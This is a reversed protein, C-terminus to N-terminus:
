AAESQTSHHPSTPNAIPSPTTLLEAWHQVANIPTTAAHAGDDLAIHTDSLIIMRERRMRQAAPAPLTLPKIRQSEIPAPLPDIAAAGTIMLWKDYFAEITEYTADCRTIRPVIWPLPLGREVRRAELLQQINEFVTRMADNATLQQYLAADNAYTDISIIDIDADLIARADGPRNLDTRLHIAAVRHDRAITILERWHNSNLPDAPRLASAPCITPWARCGTLGITLVLDRAADGLTTLITDLASPTIGTLAETPLPQDGITYWAASEGKAQTPPATCIVLEAPTTPPASSAARAITPADATTTDTIINTTLSQLATIVTHKGISTDPILRVGADRAPGELPICNDRGIPDPRPQVPTYGLTGGLNSWPVNDAQGTAFNELNKRSILVPALGPCAQTFVIGFQEPSEDHRAILQDILSPDILCWDLGAILAADLNDLLGATRLANTITPADFAEDFATLNALGGRWNSQAISRAIRKSRAAHAETENTHSEIITINLTNIHNNLIRRADDPRPTIIAIGQLRASRALRQALLALPPPTGPTLPQDWTTPQDANATDILVAWARTTTPNNTPQKQEQHTSPAPSTPISGADFAADVRQLITDLHDGVEAMWQVNVRDRQVRLRFRELEPLEAARAIRRDAAYRKLAATQNLKQLLTWAPETAHVEDRNRHVQAILKNVRATDEAHRETRELLSDTDRSLRAIRRVGRRLEALRERVQPSRQNTPQDAPQDSPRDNPLPFPPIPDTDPAAHTKLTEALTLSTTHQKAIGGETADITTLSKAKDAAFYQEFQAAYTAMQEDTYIPRGLHDQRKYLYARMRVIRQWELMELTNFPNLEGAWTTHIAAQDAYYQGDTFALDQGILAVPDCGFYRALSYSLHAVTAADPLTARPHNDPAAALDEGLAIRLIDEEIFRRQGPWADHIAPNARGTSVLTIGKVDDATLGEYFRKSIEAYDIATVFDPRIGMALLPKLVTQVAIVVCRARADPDKLLEINRKLSPGASVVIGLRGRAIDKLQGIGPANAYRDANALANRFSTDSQMLTTIIHTRVAAVASPFTKQFAEIDIALRSASPPHTAFCVGFSLPAELGRLAATLAALDSPTTIFRIEKSKLWRAHDIRALVARLLPIDTELVLIATHEDCREALAKIHHGLAFGHVVVIAHQELDIADAWRKAEEIPRRKSALAKGQLTATLTDPQNDSQTGPQNITEFHLDQSPEAQQIMTALAPNRLRLAAINGALIAADERVEAITNSM